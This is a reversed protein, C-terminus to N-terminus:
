GNWKVIEERDLNIVVVKIQSENIVRMVAVDFIRSFITEPIALYLAGIKGTEVLMARYILYQGISIYLDSTTSDEDPFCKVEVFLVQQQSGNVRHSMELDIFITRYPYDLQLAFKGAVM